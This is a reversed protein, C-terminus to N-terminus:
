QKSNDDENRGRERKIDDIVGKRLEEKLHASLDDRHTPLGIIDEIKAVSRLVDDAIEEASKPKNPKMRKGVDVAEKGAGEIMRTIPLDYDLLGGAKKEPNM